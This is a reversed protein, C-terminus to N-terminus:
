KITMGSALGYVIDSALLTAPVLFSVHTWSWAAQDGM